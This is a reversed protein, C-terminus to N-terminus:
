APLYVAVRTGRGPAADLELRGGASAVRERHSALGIHGDAMRDISPDFGRGDDEVGLFVGRGDSGLRVRVRRADAHKVVNALVERAVALLLREHPHRADYEFDFEVRFGGRRASRVAVARIAAPLGAQELVYPHLEFVAERLEEVTAALAADARELAPHRAAEGAEALDHRASLLNQIAHDHLGEALGRREREEATLAEAMLRRRTAALETVRHTRRALVSSLLVAALGVWSLYATQIATFREGTPLESAPDLLAQTLYAAVTCAAAIATATPNFRFAVAIPILFYALRAQSFAGGSLVVLATIAAVDAATAVLAVRASVPRVYVLVLVAVGWASFVAIAEVFGQEAPSPHAVLQGLGILAIALLRLWGVLRETEAAAETLAFPERARGVRV